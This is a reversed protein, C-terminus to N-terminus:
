PGQNLQMFTLFFYEAKSTCLLNKPNNIAEHPTLWEM